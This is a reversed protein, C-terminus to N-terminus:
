FRLRRRTGTWRNGPRTPQGPPGLSVYGAVLSTLVLFAPVDIAERSDPGSLAWGRDGFHDASLRIAGNQNALDRTHSFVALSPLLDSGAGRATASPYKSALKFGTGAVAEESWWRRSAARRDQGCLLDIATDAAAAGLDLRRNSIEGEGLDSGASPASGAENQAEGPNNGSADDSSGPSLSPHERDFREIAEDTGLTYRQWAPASPSVPSAAQGITQATPELEDEDMGLGVFGRQGLLSQGLSIATASSFAQAAIGEIEGASADITVTLLTGVLALSSEQLPVLQAVGSSTPSAPPTIPSIAGAGLSLAVLAAAEQGETAAYFQVQGGTLSSFALGTPNPLNAVTESSMLTLGSASGAFLALVGDGTNGVVLDDFGSSTSFAFATEPDLGGSAITTTVPSRSDFNSILTLDNSGANVTVLDSQGNFNGVFSTVPNTGVSFTTPNQDNFFGQGVGPLLAVDNSQSNTVLLDPFAGGSFNGVVTSVPGSGGSNLRPGPTFRFNGQNLLISVQNSGENAVVMDPLAGTLNAMTIGVPNTGVFYGNGDNVAPGFQGNGLGPYILVNNSGSNAVILDPIGDGNLDALKVAGPDLLGTSRNALVSSNGAGYDVVVRDLGQDAYIIDKAGNGTLDAVALEVAQNAEHYPAFTGDGNGVLV